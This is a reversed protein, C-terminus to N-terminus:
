LPYHGENEYKITLWTQLMIDSLIYDQQSTYEIIGKNSLLDIYKLITSKSYKLENNLITWNVKDLETILIIIEKEIDTLTGWVRLWLLAIQDINLNLAEMITNEDINNPLISALTNIYTPIGRTCKYFREFGKKTFKLEKAKKTLYQKTEEYTFPQIAIQIMRGGFAGDMGNIMTIVESTRSISGTFIYSVNFQKQTYSRILWFFASPNKIYKLLQFEDIVIIYGKLNKNSEIIKQPLEMTFKSLKNYNDKIIPIPIDFINTNTNNFKLDKIKLKELYTTIKDKTNNYIEQEILTNNIQNLIEKIVEEESLKGKERGHIDSLDIYTTLIDKEQDHLLKKLLFTKGVGRYGTVLIQPPIDKRLLSIYTNLEELDKTRNFFYKDIDKPITTPLIPM